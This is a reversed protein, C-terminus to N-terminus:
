SQFTGGDDSRAADGILLGLSLLLVRHGALRVSVSNCLDQKVVRDPLTRGVQPM